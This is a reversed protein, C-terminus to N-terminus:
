KLLDKLAVDIHKFKFDFGAKEIKSGSVKNGGLVVSAMEGLFLKLAFAPVHPLFLPKNLISAASKTFLENTVPRPAVANYVGQIQDNEIAYIYMRCLDDIHIWSIYQQGSGLPAGLGLKVPQVLKELAGGERSLVVGTRLKVVRINLRKVEDVAAEWKKTVEALFFTGKPSSEIMETSGTDEGYISIGSAAIFAKVKHQGLQAIGDHLLKASATRSKLIVEKRSKTWRKEAVSAGALHIIYDANNLAEPEIEKKEINWIYTKVDQKDSRSRSLHSVNYGKELLMKTLRTGILGSGGTILVHQGM